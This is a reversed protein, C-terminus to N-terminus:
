EIVPLSVMFKILGFIYFINDAKYSFAENLFPNQDLDSYTCLDYLYYFDM